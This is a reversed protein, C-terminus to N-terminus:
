MSKICRGGLHAIVNKGWKGFPLWDSPQSSRGGLLEFLIYIFQLFFPTLIFQLQFIGSKNSSSPSDIGCTRTDACARARRPNKLKLKNQSGEEKLIYVYIHIYVYIVSPLLSDSYIRISFDGFIARHRSPYHAHIRDALHIPAAPELGPM